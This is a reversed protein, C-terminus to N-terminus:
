NCTEIEQKEKQKIEEDNNNHSYQRKGLKGMKKEGKELNKPREVKVPVSETLNTKVFHPVDCYRRKYLVESILGM